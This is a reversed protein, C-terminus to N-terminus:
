RLLANLLWALCSIYSNAFEYIGAVEVLKYEEVRGSQTEKKLAKEKRM